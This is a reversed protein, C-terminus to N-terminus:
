FLQELIFRTIYCFREPIALQKPSYSVPFLPAPFIICNKIKTIESTAIGLKM